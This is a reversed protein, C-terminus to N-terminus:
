DNYKNPDKTIKPLTNGEGESRHGFLVWATAAALMLALLLGVWALARLSGGGMPDPPLPRLAPRADAALNSAPMLVQTTSSGGRAPARGRVGAFPALAAAVEAPTNYRDAARKALMRGVVEALAVPIGPRLRDLPEPVENLHRTFIEVASEATFPPQGSLLYHLTCGLSYIDSRSDVMRSNTAQEPSMFEPTGVVCGERTVSFSNSPNEADEMRALGFDLIKVQPLDDPASGPKPNAIIINAPKIDRHVMGLEFAHQLGLAV